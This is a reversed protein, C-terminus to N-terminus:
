SHLYLMILTCNSYKMCAGGHMSKDPTHWEKFDQAQNTQFCLFLSKRSIFRTKSWMSILVIWYTCSYVHYFKMSCVCVHTFISVPSFVFCLGLAIGLVMGVQYEQYVMLECRLQTVTTINNVHTDLIEAKGVQGQLSSSKSFYPKSKDKLM